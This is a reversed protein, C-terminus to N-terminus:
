QRIFSPQRFHSMTRRVGERFEVRSSWGLSARIRTSDGSFSGIDFVRHEEPFPRLVINERQGAESQVIRAIDHLTLAEPGCINYLRFPPSPVSGALLFAEVADDVYLPDRLQTGDGFVDLPKGDLVRRMFVTLFGQGPVDLALRPGYTNTLRLVIADLQGLRAHLLHYQEAARKHIGNFDSPNIPHDEHVPLTLPRGCVQRTSAYVIRVGPRAASLTRLFRLQATANCELDRLPDRMSASHSVEGALNFVVDANVLVDSHEDLDEIGIPIVRISGELHDLNEPRGGCGPV